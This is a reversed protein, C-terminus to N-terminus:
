KRGQRVEIRDVLSQDALDIWVRIAQPVEQWMIAQSELDPRTRLFDTLEAYLRNMVAFRHAMCPSPDAFYEMSKRILADERVPLATLSHEALIAGTQDLFLLNLKKVDFAMM